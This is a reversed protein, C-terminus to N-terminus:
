LQLTRLVDLSREPIQFPRRTKRDVAVHVYEGQAASVPEDNVFLAPAYVISSSGIRKIGIGILIRDNLRVESFYDCSQHVVLCIPEAATQFLNNNILWNNIATDFLQFHITNNVHDYKDVDNWRLLLPILESYANRFAPNARTM